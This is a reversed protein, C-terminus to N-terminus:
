LKEKDNNKLAAGQWSESKLASAAISYLADLRSGVGIQMAAGILYGNAFERWNDYSAIAADHANKILALATKEEIYGKQLALRAALTLRGADWALIGKKLSREDIPFLPHNRKRAIAKALRDASHIIATADEKRQTLVAYRRERRDAYKLAFSLSTEYYARDGSRRLWDLTSIATSKDVIGWKKLELDLRNASVGADLGNAFAGIEEGYILGLALAKSSEANLPPASPNQRFERRTVRKAFRKARPDVYVRWAASLAVCAFLWSLDM